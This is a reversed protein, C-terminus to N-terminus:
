EFETKFLGCRDLTPPENVDPYKRGPHAHSERQERTIQWYHEETGLALMVLFMRFYALM